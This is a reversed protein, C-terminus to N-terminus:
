SYAEAFLSTKLWLRLLYHRERLMSLSTIRGVVSITDSATFSQIKLPYETKARKIVTEM